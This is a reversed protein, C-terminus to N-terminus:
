FLKDKSVNITLQTEVNSKLGVTPNMFSLFFIDQLQLRSEHKNVIRDSLHESDSLM